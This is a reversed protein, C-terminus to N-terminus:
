PQQYHGPPFATREPDIHSVQVDSIAGPPADPHLSQLYFLAQEPTLADNDVDVRTSQPQNELIYSVLFAYKKAM